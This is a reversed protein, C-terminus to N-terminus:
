AVLFIWKKQLFDDVDLNTFSLEGQLLTIDSNTPISYSLNKIEMITDSYPTETELNNKILLDASNQDISFSVPESAFNDIGSIFNM